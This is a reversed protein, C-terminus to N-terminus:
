RHNREEERRSPLVLTASCPTVPGDQTAMVIDLDVRHEGATIHKKTVKGTIIMDDGACINGRM